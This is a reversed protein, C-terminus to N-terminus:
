AYSSPKWLHDFKGERISDVYAQAQRHLREGNDGHEKAGAAVQKMTASVTMVRTLNGLENGTIGKLYSESEFFRRWM